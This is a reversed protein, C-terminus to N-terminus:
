SRNDASTEKGPAPDSTEKRIPGGSVERAELLQWEAYGDKRNEVLRGRLECRTRVPHTKVSLYARTIAAVTAEQLVLGTGDALRITTCIHHHGAPIEACVAEVDRNTLTRKTTM